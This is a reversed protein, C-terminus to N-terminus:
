ARLGDRAGPADGVRHRVAVHRHISRELDVDLEDGLEVVDCLLESLRQEISRADVGDHWAQLLDRGQMAIAACLVRPAPVQEAPTTSRAAHLAAALGTLTLPAPALEHPQASM